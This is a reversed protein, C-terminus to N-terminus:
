QRAEKAKQNGSKKINIYYEIGGIKVWLDGEGDLGGSDIETGEDKMTELYKRLEHAISLANLDGFSGHALQMALNKREESDM